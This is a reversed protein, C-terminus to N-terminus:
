KSRKNTGYYIRRNNIYTFPFLQNASPHSQYVLDFWSTPIFLVCPIMWVGMGTPHYKWWQISAHLDVCIGGSSLLPKFSSNFLWEFVWEQQTTNGDSSLHTYISAFVARRSYHNSHRILYDNLCGNRNPPIEMVPYIGTFRRLYRGVLTTTQIVCSACSSKKM